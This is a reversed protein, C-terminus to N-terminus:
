KLPKLCYSSKSTYDFGWTRRGFSDVHFRGDPNSNATRPDFYAGFGFKSDPPARGWTKCMTRFLREVDGPQVTVLDFASFTMHVSSKAGGICRNFEPPRYGSVVRVPGLAPIVLARVLKLTSIANPWLAKPPIVFSEIPCEHSSYQEDPILLQWTPVIDKVGNKELLNDLEVYASQRNESESLWTTFRTPLNEDNVTAAIGSQSFGIAFILAVKSVVALM